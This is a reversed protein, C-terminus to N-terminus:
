LCFGKKLIWGSGRTEIQVKSRVRRGHVVTFLRVGDEQYGKLIDSPQCSTEVFIKKEASVFGAGESGGRGSCTSRPWRPTRGSFESWNM